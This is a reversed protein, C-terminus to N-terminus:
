ASVNLKKATEWAEGYEVNTVVIIRCAPNDEHIRRILELGDMKPMRIDTIVLDPHYKQYLLWASMGDAAEGIVCMDHELWPVSSAIGM